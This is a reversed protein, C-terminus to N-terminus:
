VAAARGISPCSFGGATIHECLPTASSVHSLTGKAHLQTGTSSNHVVAPSNLQSTFHEWRALAAYAVVFFLINLALAIKLTQSLTSSEPALSPVHSPHVLFLPAYM